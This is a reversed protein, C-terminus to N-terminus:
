MCTGYKIWCINRTWLLTVEFGSVDLICSLFKLVIVVASIQSARIFYSDLVPSWDAFGHSMISNSFYKEVMAFICIDSNSQIHYKSGSCGFLFILRHKFYPAPLIGSGCLLQTLLIGIDSLSSCNMGCLIHQTEVSAIMTEVIEWWTGRRRWGTRPARRWGRRGAILCFLVHVWSIIWNLEISLAWWIVVTYTALCAYFFIFTSHM